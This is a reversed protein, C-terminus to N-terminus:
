IKFKNKKINIFYLISSSVDDFISLLIKYSLELILSKLSIFSSLILSFYYFYVSFLILKIIFLSGSIVIKISLISMIILYIARFIKFDLFKM